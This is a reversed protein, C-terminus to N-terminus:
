CYMLNLVFAEEISVIMGIQNEYLYKFAKKNMEKMGQGTYHNHSNEKGVHMEKPIFIVYDNNIHHANSNKFRKNLPIFGMKRRKNLKRLLSNGDIYLPNNEGMMRESHEPRIKGFMTSSEGIMGYQPNNKGSCDWHNESMKLKTEKSHQKGYFPNKDGFKGKMHHNIRMSHGKLFNPIGKYKHDRRIKIFQGCGCKCRHHKRQEKWIWEIIFQRM